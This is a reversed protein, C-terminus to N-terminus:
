PTNRVTQRTGGKAAEAWRAESAETTQQAKREAEWRAESEAMQSVKREAAWCVESEATTQQSKREAAWRM